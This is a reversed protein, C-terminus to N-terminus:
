NPALYFGISNIYRDYRGFFGVVRGAIIPICVREGGGQGFPGHENGLNTKFGLETISLKGYYDKFSVIVWNIYEDSELDFQMCCRLISIYIYIYYNLSILIFTYIYIYLQYFQYHFDM